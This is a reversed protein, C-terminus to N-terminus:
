KFRRVFQLKTGNFVDLDIHQSIGKFGQLKGSISYQCFLWDKGSPLKAGLSPDAIWIECDYNKEIYNSYIHRTTYIVPKVGYHKKISAIMRGLTNHFTNSSPPNNVYKGYLEVDIVPPMMKRTDKTSDIQEKFNDAQLNGDVDFSMFHYAGRVIGAKKSNKWNTMFKKDVHSRGESAKIYAFSIGQKYLLNWDIDGQYVSVDVGRVPYAVKDKPPDPMKLVNIGIRGVYILSLVALCLIAVKIYKIWEVKIMISKKRNTGTKRGKSRGKNRKIKAGGTKKNGM